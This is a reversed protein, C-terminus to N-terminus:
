KEEPTNVGPSERVTEEDDSRKRRGFEVHSAKFDMLGVPPATFEGGDILISNEGQIFQYWMYTGVFLGGGVINGLGAPIIGKWIYLGVTLNPTGLWIGIPVFFM